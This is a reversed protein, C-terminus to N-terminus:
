HVQLVPVLLALACVPQHPPPVDGPSIRRGIQISLRLLFAVTALTAEAGSSLLGAPNLCLQVGPVSGGETPIPFIQVAPESPICLRVWPTPPYPSWLQLPSLLPLCTSCASAPPEQLSWTLHWLSALTPPRGPWPRLRWEYLETLHMLLRHRQVRPGPLSITLLESHGEWFCRTTSVALGSGTTHSHVM